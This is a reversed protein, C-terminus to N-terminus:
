VREREWEIPITLPEDAEELVVLDDGRAAAEALGIALLWFLAVGSVAAIIVLSTVSFM